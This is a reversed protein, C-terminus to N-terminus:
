YDPMLQLHSFGEIFICMGRAPLAQFVYCLLLLLVHAEVPTDYITFTSRSKLRGFDM